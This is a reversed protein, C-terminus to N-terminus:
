IDPVPNSGSQMVYQQGDYHYRARKAVSGQPQKIYSGNNDEVVSYRKDTFDVVIDRYDASPESDVFRMRSEVEWCQGNSPICDNGGAERFSGLQRVGAALDFIVAANQWNGQWIGGSSIIFGPKGPALMVWKLEGVQGNSGLEAIGEHRELVEWDDGSRQLTYVSLLGRTAHSYDDPSSNVVLVARESSLSIASLPTMVYHPQSLEDQNELLALLLRQQLPQGLAVPAPLQVDPAAAAVPAQAPQVAQVPEAADQRSCGALTALLAITLSIRM